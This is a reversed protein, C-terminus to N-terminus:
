PIGAGYDLWGNVWIVISRMVSKGLDFLKSEIKDM